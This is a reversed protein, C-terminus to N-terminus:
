NVAPQLLVRAGPHALHHPSATINDISPVSASARLAQCHPRSAHSPQEPRRHENRYRPRRRRRGRGSRQSVGASQVRRGGAEKRRPCQSPARPLEHFAAQRLHARAVPTGCHTVVHSCAEEGVAGDGHTTGEGTGSRGADTRRSHWDRRALLAAAASAATNEGM